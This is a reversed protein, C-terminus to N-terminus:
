DTLLDVHAGWVEDQGLSFNLDGVVIVMDGRMLSNSFLNDWFPIRNLYPGYVNFITFTDVLELAKFTMGLVSELGWINM